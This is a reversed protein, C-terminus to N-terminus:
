FNTLNCELRSKLTSEHSLPKIAPLVLGVACLIEMGALALWGGNPIAKLAPVTQESNTFKWIAGMLTHAALVGQLIWLFINM